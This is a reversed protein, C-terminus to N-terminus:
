QYYLMDDKRTSQVTRGVRTQLQKEVLPKYVDTCVPAKREWRFDAWLEKLTRKDQKEQKTEEAPLPVRPGGSRGSM